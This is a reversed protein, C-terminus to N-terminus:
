SPEGKKQEDLAAKFKQWREIMMDALERKDDDTLDNPDLDSQDCPAWLEGDWGYYVTRTTGLGVVDSHCDITRGSSFRMTDRAGVYFEITM